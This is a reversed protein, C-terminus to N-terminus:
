TAFNGQGFGSSNSRRDIEDQLRIFAREEGEGYILPMYIDFIGLLCYAKDEEITTSRNESWSMREDVGFQSLAGDTAGQLARVPIRTIECIQMELSKRDGLLNGECSFFEVSRPALLEQLTWGRTFWRSERFASGWQLTDDPTAQNLPPYSSPTDQAVGSVSVDALYVYCKAADRYLRFM